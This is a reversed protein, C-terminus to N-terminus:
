KVEVAPAAIPATQGSLQMYVAATAVMTVPIAVFLGVLLAVFGLMTIALVILDFVILQWKVGKTAESSLRLSEIIGTNKDILFYQFFMFKLGFYVTSVCAAVGLIGLVIRIITQVVGAPFLFTLGFATAIIAIPLIVILGILLAGAFSKGILNVCSFLDGFMAKQQKVLGIAIKIFGLGILLNFFFFIIVLLFTFITPDSNPQSLTLNQLMTEGINILFLFLIVGVFFWLNKTAAQWGTKVAADFNISKTSM